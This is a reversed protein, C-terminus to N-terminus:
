LYLRIYFHQITLFYQISHCGSKLSFCLDRKLFVEPQHLSTRIAKLYQEESMELKTLFTNFPMNIGDKEDKMVSTIKKYMKELNKREESNSEERNNDDNPFPTLIITKSMPPIPYGFRCISKGRKRCTKSHKHTQLKILQKLSNDVNSSCSVYQDIFKIVDSDDCEGYVPADKVWLMLHIHPSGRQHFEVHYFFDTIEGLPNHHSKIVKMFEQVRNDFYRVCTVPDSQLLRTREKWDLCGIEDDTYDKNDLLKGLMKLLDKWKTDAASLSSFWTPLGLQRILGFIDKKRKQLYSPSNRITKFIYYGDDLNVIKDCGGDALLQGATLKKDISKCRKIALSM